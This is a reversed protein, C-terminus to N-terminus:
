DILTEFIDKHISGTPAVRKLPKKKQVESSFDNNAQQNDTNTQARKPIALRTSVTDFASDLDVIGQHNTDSKRELKLKQGTPKLAKSESAKLYDMEMELRTWDLTSAFGTLNFIFLGLITMRMM